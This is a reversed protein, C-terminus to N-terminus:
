PRATTRPQKPVPPFRRWVFVVLLGFLTYALAFVWAPAQYFIVRQVWHEIFSTEYGATGARARLSSELTTLPCIRGLWAQLVVVAITALHTRRFWRNNVWRWRLANGALVLALGGVVFVVLGFHVLLVADALAQWSPM